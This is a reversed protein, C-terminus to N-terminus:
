APRTRLGWASLVSRRFDEPADWRRYTSTCPPGQSFDVRLRGNGRDVVILTSSLTGHEEGHRCVADRHLFPDHRASFRKMEDLLDEPEVEGPEGFRLWEVGEWPDDPDRGEYGTETTVLFGGANSRRARDVGQPPHETGLLGEPGAVLLSFPNFRAPDERELVEGADEVSRSEELLTRVLQGRSPARDRRADTPAPQNTVLVVLGAENLGIWTGGAVPDLPALFSLPSGGRLRIPEGQRTYYEDRNAALM